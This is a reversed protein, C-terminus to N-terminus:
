HHTCNKCMGTTVRIIQTGKKGKVEGQKERSYMINTSGCKPCGNKNLQEQENQMEATIQSGCFDCFRSNIIEAGCNPCKM